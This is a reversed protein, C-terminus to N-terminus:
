TRKEFVKSDINPLEKGRYKTFNKRNGKKHIFTTLARKWLKPHKKNEKNGQLTRTVNDRTKSRTKFFFSLPNGDPGSSKTVDVEM